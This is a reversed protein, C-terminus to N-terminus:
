PIALATPVSAMKEAYAFTEHILIRARLVGIADLIARALPVEVALATPKKLMMVGVTADDEPVDLAGAIPEDVAADVPLAEPVPDPVDEPRPM